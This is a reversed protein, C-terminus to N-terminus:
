RGDAEWKWQDSYYRLGRLGLGIVMPITDPKMFKQFVETYDLEVDSHNLIETGFREVRRAKRTCLFTRVVQWGEATTVIHFYYRNAEKKKGPSRKLDVRAGCVPCVIHKKRGKWLSESDFEQACVDCWGKKAGIWATGRTQQADKRQEATMSPLSASLREIERRRKIDGKAM